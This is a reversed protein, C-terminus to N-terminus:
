TEKQIGNRLYQLIAAPFAMTDVKHLCPVSVGLFCVTMPAPLRKQQVHDLDVVLALRAPAGSVANLIGIGRAEILGVLTEPASAIVDGANRTLRTQDDSILDAGFAMLQLALSSKGSGSAGTILVAEGSVAICTGHVLTQPADPM